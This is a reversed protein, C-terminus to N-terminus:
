VEREGKEKCVIDIVLKRGGDRKDDEFNIVRNQQQIKVKRNQKEIEKYVVYDPMYSDLNIKCIRESSERTEKKTKMRM